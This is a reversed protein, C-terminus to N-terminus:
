QSDAEGAKLRSPDRCLLSCRNHTPTPSRLVPIKTITKADKIDLRKAGPVAGVGPTLPDGPYETDMVSGRQVGDRPRWGGTPYDDGHFFGDGRPDSYILCGVAGHEAAVKPKIGRWGSGYRTIVIAGKV